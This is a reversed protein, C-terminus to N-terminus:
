MVPAYGPYFSGDQCFNTVLLATMRLSIARLAILRHIQTEEKARM